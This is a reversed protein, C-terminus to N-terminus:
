IIEWIMDHLINEEEAVDTVETVEAVETVETVEEALSINRKVINNIMRSPQEAIIITKLGLDEKKKYDQNSMFM